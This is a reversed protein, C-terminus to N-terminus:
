LDGKEIRNKFVLADVRIATTYFVPITLFLVWLPHWLGTFHSIMVYLGIILSPYAFRVIRKKLICEFISEVVTGFLILTWMPHWLGTVASVVIFATLSIFLMCSMITLLFPRNRKKFSSKKSFIHKKDDDTVVEVKVEEITM